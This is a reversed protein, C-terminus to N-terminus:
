TSSRVEGTANRHIIAGLTGICAHLSTIRDIIPSGTLVPHGEHIGTIEMLGSMAQGIPDFAPRDRYPGYQGFGSVSTLIIDPKIKKLVEYSFGM